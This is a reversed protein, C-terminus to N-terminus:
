VDEVETQPPAMQHVSVLYLCTFSHDMGSRRTHVVFKLVLASYVSVKKNGKSNYSFAGAAAATTVATAILVATLFRKIHTLDSNWFRDSNPM